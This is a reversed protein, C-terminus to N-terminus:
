LEWCHLALGEATGIFMSVCAYSACTPRKRCWAFPKTNPRAVGPTAIENLRCHNHCVTQCTSCLTSHYPADVIKKEKVTKIQTYKAYKEVDAMAGKGIVQLM